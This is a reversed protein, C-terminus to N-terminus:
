PKCYKCPEAGEYQALMQPVIEPTETLRHCERRHYAKGGKSMYVREAKCGERLYINVVYFNDVIKKAYDPLEYYCESYYEGVSDIERGSGYYEDIEAKLREAEKIFDHVEVRVINSTVRGSKVYINCEGVDNAVLLGDRYSVVAEDSSYYSLKVDSNPKVTPEINCVSNVDVSLNDPTIVISVGSHKVCSNICLLMSLVAICLFVRCMNKM